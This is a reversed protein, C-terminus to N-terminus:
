DFQSKNKLFVNREIELIEIKYKLQKNEHQLKYFSDDQNETKLEYLKLQKKLDNITKKLSENEEELRRIATSSNIADLNLNVSAHQLMNKSHICKENFIDFEMKYVNIDNSIEYNFCKNIILESEILSMEPITSKLHSVILEFSDCNVLIAKHVVLIALSVKFLTISGETFLFDFVRAVFGM